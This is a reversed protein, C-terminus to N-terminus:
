RDIQEMILAKAQRAPLNLMGRVAAAASAVDPVAADTMAAEIQSLGDDGLKSGFTRINAALAEFLHVRIEAPVDANTAAVLLRAQADADDLEALVTAAARVVAPRSDSIAGILAAKAPALDYSGADVAIDRMLRAANLAYGTATERDIALVNTAARAANVAHVVDDAAAVVATTVLPNTVALPEFDSQKTATLLVKAAGSLRTSANAISLASRADVPNAAADIVLVDVAPMSESTSALDTVLTIGQVDYGAAELATAYSNITDRSPLLLLATPRGTQGLAEALLPVVLDRGEFEGEPRAAALAFAAEFRVRRSPNRLATLLSSGEGTVSLNSRGVVQQISKLINFAAASDGDGLTRGLATGLYKQGATVGYYHADRSGAPRTPDTYGPPLQTERRYNAALWLSLADDAVSSGDAAAQLAYEAARMAMIEGFIEPIVDRKTLGTQEDWFWVFAQPNRNDATIAGRGAYFKEALEYFAADVPADAVGLKNLAAAAQQSLPGPGSAKIKLLYPGVDTYGIDGLLNVVEGVLQVDSSETAAVLPNLVDRGLDRIARRIQGHYTSKSPSRLYDLLIPVALEGSNRLNALGNRYGLENVILRDINETIFSSDSRRAYRGEVLLAQVQTAVDKLEPTGILRVMTQSLDDGRTKAVAEFETLVTLPDPSLDLLAQGRAVAADYRGIKAFHWFDKVASSLAPDAVQATAIPTFGLDAPLIAGTLAAAVALTVVRCTTKNQSARAM